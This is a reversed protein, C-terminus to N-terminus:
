YVQQECIKSPQSALAKRRQKGRVASATGTHVDRGLKVYTGPWPDPSLAEHKLLLCEAHLAM